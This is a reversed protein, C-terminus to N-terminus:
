MLSRYVQLTERACKQWSFLAARLRGRRALDEQRSRSGVVAELAARLDDTEGPAFYEAADGAVEPLSSSNSCIVPCGLLMAELVPIGFGEYLSPYVLAIAGTYLAGLSADDSQSVHMVAHHKLGAAAYAEREATSIAGGGVCVIRLDNRLVASRTLAEVLGRFNKYGNRAGVYLVYPTTGVLQSASREGPELRDCGQYIVSVQNEPLAHADLLDRRTNESVCIVHDARHVAQAKRAATPDGAPFARPFREHIMDHVTTVVPVAGHFSPSRPYYTEHVIDPAIRRTMPGFLLADIGKILAGTYKVSPVYRGVAVKEPAARLHQNVHVPALITGRDGSRAIASALAVFYRSIGGFQQGAFIQYDYVIKM